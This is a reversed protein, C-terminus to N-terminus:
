AFQGTTSHWPSPSVTPSITRTGWQVTRSYTLSAHGNGNKGKSRSTGIPKHTFELSEDLAWLLDSLTRITKNHEGDLVQTIWAPTKGLKQALESRSVGKKKMLRGIMATVYEIAREQQYLRM